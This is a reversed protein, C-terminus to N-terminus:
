SCGETSEDRIKEASRASLGQRLSERARFVRVKVASVSADQAVSIEEYSLQHYTKLILAERQDQPLIAIARQLARIRERTEAREDPQPGPDAMTEDLEDSRMRTSKIRNRALNSAIRYLYARLKGEPQYGDVAGFFRAFTEQMLDEGDHFSGTLRCLYSGIAKAHRRVLSEAADPRGRKAELVLEDDTYELM